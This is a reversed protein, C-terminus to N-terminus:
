RLERLGVRFTHAPRSVWRLPCGLASGSTSLVFVSGDDEVLREDTSGAELLERRLLPHGVVGRGYAAAGGELATQGPLCENQDQQDGDGEAGRDVHAHPV